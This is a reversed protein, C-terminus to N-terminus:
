RLRGLDVHLCIARHGYADAGLAVTLRVPGAIGLDHVFPQADIGLVHDQDLAVRVLDLGAGASAAGPGDGHAAAGDRSCGVLDDFFSLTDGSLLELGGLGVDIEGVAHERDGARVQM